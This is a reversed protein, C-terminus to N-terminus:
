QLSCVTPNEKELANIAAQVNDSCTERRISTDNLFGAFYKGMCASTATNNATGNNYSVLIKENITAQWINSDGAGYMMYEKWGSEKIQVEKGCVNVTQDLKLIDPQGYGFATVSLLAAVVLFIKKM